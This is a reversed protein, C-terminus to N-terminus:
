FSFPGFLNYQSANIRYIRPKVRKTYAIHCFSVVDAGVVAASVVVVVVVVVVVFIEVSM